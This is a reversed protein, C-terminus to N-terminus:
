PAEPAVTKPHELHPCEGDLHWTDPQGTPDWPATVEHMQRQGIVRARDDPDNTKPKPSDHGLLVHDDAATGYQITAFQLPQGKVVHTEAIGDSVLVAPRPVKEAARVYWVRSGVTLPVLDDNTM